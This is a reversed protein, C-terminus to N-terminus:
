FAAKAGLALALIVMVVSLYITYKDMTLGLKVNKEHRYCVSESVKTAWSKKLDEGRDPKEKEALQNFPDFLIDRTHSITVKGAPAVGKYGNFNKLLKYNLMWDQVPEQHEDKEAYYGDSIPLGRFMFCGDDRFLLQQGLEQPPKFLGM